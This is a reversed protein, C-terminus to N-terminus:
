PRQQEETAPSPSRPPLATREAQAKFADLADTWFGDLYRRLARIGDPDVEYLRRTGDKTVVVLGAERLVRLHQSVAPRSVPLEGAIEGVARPGGALLELVSRRTGDGLADLVAAANASV